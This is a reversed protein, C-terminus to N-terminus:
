TGVTQKEGTLTFSASPAGGAGTDQPQWRGSGVKADLTRSEAEFWYAM